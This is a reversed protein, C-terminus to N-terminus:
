ASVTFDCNMEDLTFFLGRGFTRLGILCFLVCVVYIENFIKDKLVTGELMPIIEMIHVYFRSFIPTLQM